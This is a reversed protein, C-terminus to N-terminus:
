VGFRHRTSNYNQLIQSASLTTNYVMVSGISGNFPAAWSAGMIDIPNNNGSPTYGNSHDLISNVYMDMYYNNKQVWCLFNWRNNNVTTSGMIRFWGNFYTWYTIKGQNISLASYVPGGSSNSLIPGQGLGDAGTTTRVWAMITWPLEGNGLTFTTFTASDNSGDFTIFGGNTSNNYTPGNNLTATRSNSTLSFWSTGSGPYSAMNNADWHFLLNNQIITSENLFDVGLSNLVNNNLNIPM